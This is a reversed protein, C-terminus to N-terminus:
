DMKKFETHYTSVKQKLEDDKMPSSELAMNKVITLKGLFDQVQNTIFVIHLHWHPVTQGADVGTKHLLHVQYLARTKSVHTMIKQALQMTEVYEEESLEHFSAKHAKPIILFHLKERGTGIPKYSYLVTVFKGELVKQKEIQQRNCFADTSSASTTSTPLFSFESFGIKYYSRKIEQEPKPLQSGGFTIAWLVKLQQVFRWLRNTCTSYPVVEWQFPSDTALSQNGYVLYQEGIKHEKWFHVIKQLAQFSRVHEDVTWQFLSKPQLSTVHLSPPRLPAPPLKICIQQDQELVLDSSSFAAIAMLAMFVGILKFFM